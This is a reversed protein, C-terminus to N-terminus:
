YVHLIARPLLLASSLLDNWGSASWLTTIPVLTIPGFSSLALNPPHQRIEGLRGHFFCAEFVM